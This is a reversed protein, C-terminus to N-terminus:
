PSIAQLWRGPKQVSTIPLLFITEDQVSPNKLLTAVKLIYKPKSTLTLRTEVHVTTSLIFVLSPVFM